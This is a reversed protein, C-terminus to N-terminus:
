GNTSRNNDLIAAFRDLPFETGLFRVTDDSVTAVNGTTSVALVDDQDAGASSPPLGSRQVFVIVRDDTSFTPYQESSVEVSGMRGGPARLKIVAGPAYLSKRSGLSREVQFSWESYISTDDGPVALHGTPGSRVTGLVAGYIGARRPARAVREDVTLADEGSYPARAQDVEVHRAASTPGGDGCGAAGALLAALAMPALVRRNTM